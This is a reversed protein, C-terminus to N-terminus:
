KIQLSQVLHQVGARAEVIYFERRADHDPALTYTGTVGHIPTHDNILQDFYQKVKERSFGGAEIADRILYVADYTYASGYDVPRGTMGRYSEVFQRVRPNEMEPMFFQSTRMGEVLQPLASFFFPEGISDGGLIDTHFGNDRITQITWQAAEPRQFLVFLDPPHNRSERVVSRILEKDDAQLTNRHMISFLIRGGNRRVAKEFTETLGRGYDDNVYFIAINKKHWAQVAYEALAPGQASDSLCLRFTWQGINTISPNTAITVVQPIHYQNYFAAASLTSASDSHGIVAVLEPISNFRKSWEMIEAPPFTDVVRWDLGSLELPVGRIGGRANIEQAALIAAPHLGQTMAIGIVVRQPRATCGNLLLGALGLLVWSRWQRKATANM